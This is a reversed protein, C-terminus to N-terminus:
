GLVCSQAAGSPASAQGGGRRAALEARADRAPVKYGYKGDLGLAQVIALGAALAPGELAQLPRRLDGAPLGLAKMLSKM